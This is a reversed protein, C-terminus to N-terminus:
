LHPKVASIHTFIYMRPSYTELDGGTSTISGHNPAFVNGILRRWGVSWGFYYPGGAGIREAIHLTWYKITSDNLAFISEKHCNRLQDLSADQEM